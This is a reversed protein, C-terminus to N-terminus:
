QYQVIDFAMHPDDLQNYMNKMRTVQKVAWAIDSAYQPFGPNEPNWRMKYLTDQKYENHIYRNAIFEAGGKIAAEPTFWQEEYARIAGLRLPDIDDAGISFMNYTTQVYKLEDKNADTVLEPLGMKNLGVDVGTALRSAGNGTELLSHSILYIENVEYTTGGDIFAQGFGALIGKDALVRNLQDASVGVNESLILHQFDDHNAPNLYFAVDAATPNRWASLEIEYWLGNRGTVTVESNAPLTDFVHGFTNPASRVNLRSRTTAITGSREVISSHIYVTKGDYLAKNWVTDGGVDEGTVQELILVETGKSIKQYIATSETTPETRFHANDVTIIGGFQLYAGHVYAKDNRYKDTQQLQGMQMQLAETETVPYTTVKKKKEEAKISFPQFLLLTFIFSMFLFM